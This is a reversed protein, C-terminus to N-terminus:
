MDTLHQKGLKIMDELLRDFDEFRSRYSVNLARLSFVGKTVTDSVVGFQTGYLSDRIKENLGKVQEESLGNPKYRFCVINSSVPATV